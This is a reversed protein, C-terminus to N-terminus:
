GTELYLLKIRLWRQLSSILDVHVIMNNFQSICYQAFTFTFESRMGKHKALSILFVTPAFTDLCLHFHLMYPLFLTQLVAAGKSQLM